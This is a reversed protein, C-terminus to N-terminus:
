SPWRAGSAGGRRELRVDDRAGPQSSCGAPHDITIICDLAADLIGRMRRRAARTEQQTRRHELYGGVRRGISGLTELMEPPPEGLASSLVEVVAHTGSRGSLPMGYAVRLGSLAAAEARPFDPDRAVDPIWAPAAAAFVRGPLGRGVPLALGRSRLAFQEARSGAAHWDAVCRLVGEEAPIWLAGYEWGLGDAIVELCGNFAASRTPSEALVTEVAHEVRLLHLPDLAVDVAM